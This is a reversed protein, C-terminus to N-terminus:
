KNQKQWNDPLMATISKLLTPEVQPQFRAPKAYYIMSFDAEYGGENLIRVSPIYCPTDNCYASVWLRDPGYIQKLKLAYDVVVEGGLFVMALANGFRWTQVPLSVTTALAEGSDMKKLLRQALHRRQSRKDTAATQEIEARSPAAELPLDVFQFKVEPLAKLPIMKKGLLRQVERAIETGHSKTVALKGNGRDRPNADAGCGIMVLGVAGEHDQEMGDSAYGAWDGCVYNVAGLTTCHCAYNVLMAVVEGKEDRAALLPLAHDVQTSAVNKVKRRNVAFGASGQAWSLSCPKQKQIAMSVAQVIGQLMQQGYRDVARWEEESLSTAFITPLYDRAPHPANHSHTGALVVRARSIGFKDKLQKAALEAISGPVAISDVTVMVVPEKDGIVLARAWLKQEVGDNWATRSGYGSLRVPYDPTIDVRAAGIPILPSKSDAASTNAIIWTLLFFALFGPKLIQKFIAPPSIAPTSDTTM